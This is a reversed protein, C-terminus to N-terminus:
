EAVEAVGETAEPLTWEPDEGSEKGEGESDADVGDDEGPEVAEEEV